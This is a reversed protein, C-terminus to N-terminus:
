FNEIKTEEYFIFCFLLIHLLHLLFPFGKWSVWIKILSNYQMIFFSKEGYYNDEMISITTYYLNDHKVEIIETFFLLVRVFNENHGEDASFM